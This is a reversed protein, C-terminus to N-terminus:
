AAVRRVARLVLELMAADAGNAVRVLVAGVAIEIAALDRSVAAPAVGTPAATVVPVFRVGEDAPLAFRGDKAARIWNSLQQPVLDHRRAVEAIAAGPAVAEAVIRGKEASTWRRRRVIGSRIEVGGRMAYTVENTDVM